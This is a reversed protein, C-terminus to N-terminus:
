DASKPRTKRHWNKILTALAEVALQGAHTSASPLGGLSRVLDEPKLQALEAFTRGQAFEALASACAM